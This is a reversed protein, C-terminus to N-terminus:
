LRGSAGILVEDGADHYPGRDEEEEEEDDGLLEAPLVAFFILFVGFQLRLDLFGADCFNSRDSGLDSSWDM